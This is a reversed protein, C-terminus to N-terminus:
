SASVMNCVKQEDLKPKIIALVESWVAVHSNNM